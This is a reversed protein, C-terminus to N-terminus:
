ARFYEIGSNAVTGVVLTRDLFENHRECSTEAILLCGHCAAGHLFRRENANAPSHQSCIPDNSCLRGLELARRVHEAISRGVEVLGGLTGESDSTGTFLLIGYGVGPLAYIRERIASSPYGCDLSISTALLHSFTHLLVYPLLGGSEILRLSKGPHEAKWANYGDLLRQGRAQVDARAQWALLRDTSFQLFIGEGKSELAPLWDAERALPARRVDVGNLEGDLDPSVADFRTFGLQATVEQLRDVLVVKDFADMWPKTWQDRPHSRALFVADPDDPPANEDAAMLTGLELEKISVQAAPQNGRLRRIEQLAEDDSIGELASAVRAKKREYRLADLDDCEGIFDWVAQVAKRVTESRDPLSIVSLSQTFYSNSATRILFRNPQDCKDASGPGLWPSKGDCRGLIQADRNLALLLNREGQGCECRVWMESLDGSSGREELYLPRRCESKRGHAFAIWDIDGIHGHACARVFRVPVVRHCKRTVDHVYYHGRHLDIRHVLRRRRVGPRAPDTQPDQAVFWEPFRWVTVGSKPTGMDDGEVPPSLLRLRDKPPDFLRKLKEVLRPESIEPGPQKWHDLGGILVSYEPLDLMAGPGFTTLLQSRRM